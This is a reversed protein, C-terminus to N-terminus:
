SKARKSKFYNDLSYGGGGFFFIIVLLVLVLMSLEFSQEVKFLGLKLHVFFVAGFLVPIQLLAALRSLLGIALLFGGLIHLTIVYSISWYFDSMGSLQTIADPNAILIIGRALLACGLFIRIFSYAYDSHSEFWESISKLLKM